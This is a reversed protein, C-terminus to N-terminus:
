EALGASALLAVLSSTNIGLVSIIIIILIFNLLVSILSGLFSRLTAETNRREMVRNVSNKIVKVLWRGVIFILIAAVLKIGLPVLYNNVLRPLWESIPTDKVKEITEAMTMITSDNQITEGLESIITDNAM